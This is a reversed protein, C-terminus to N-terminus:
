SPREWRYWVLAGLVVWARRRERVSLTRVSLRVSVTCHLDDALILAPIYLIVITIVLGAVPNDLLEMAESSNTTALNLFMDVAIISQGFLYLLVIQFPGSSYSFSYLDLADKWLKQVLTM